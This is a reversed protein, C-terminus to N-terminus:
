DGKRAAEVVAVFDEAKLAAGGILGGDIDHQRFLERANSPKVSGGYLIPLRDAGESAYCGLRRRISAHVTQATEPTATRGTGIAWVPEYAVAGWKAPPLVALVANLQRLVVAETMGKEREELTEGLCVIPRLGAKALALAKMAVRNDTEGYIHRRESHGVICWSAGVDALMAASVEGTFAGSANENVDEAGLEIGLERCAPALEALYVSPACVVVRCDPRVGTARYSEIWARNAERSGNMKWNAIVIKDRVHLAEKPFFRTFFTSGESLCFM